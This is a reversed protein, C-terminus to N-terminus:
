SCWPKTDDGDSGIVSNSDILPTFHPVAGGRWEITTVFEGDGYEPLSTPASM